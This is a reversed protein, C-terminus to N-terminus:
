IGRRDSLQRRVDVRREPIVGRVTVRRINGEPRSAVRRDTAQPGHPVVLGIADSHGAARLHDVLQAVSEFDPLMESALAPDVLAFAELFGAARSTTWTAKFFAASDTDLERPQIQRVAAHASEILEAIRERAFPYADDTV